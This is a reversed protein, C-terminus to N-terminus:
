QWKSFNVNRLDILEHHPGYFNQLSSTLIPAVYSQKSYSKGLCSLEILLIVTYCMLGLIVYSNHFIFEIREHQQFIAVTSPFNVIPFTFDDRKNYLKAKFKGEYKIELHLELYSVTSHWYYGKSWTWNSIHIYMIVSYQEIVATYRFSSNSTQALKRDKNRLLGQLFLINIM